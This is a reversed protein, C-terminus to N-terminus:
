WITQPSGVTAPDPTIVFDFTFQEHYKKNEFESDDSSDHYLDLSVDPLIGFSDSNNEHVAHTTHVAHVASVTHTAVDPVGVGSNDGIPDTQTMNMADDGDDDRPPSDVPIPSVSNDGIPNTHTVNMVDGDHSPSDVMIPDSGDMPVEHTTKDNGEDPLSSLMMLVESCCKECNCNVPHLDPTDAKNRSVTKCFRCKFCVCDVPCENRLKVNDARYIGDDNDDVDCYAAFSRIAIGYLDDNESLGLRRLIAHMDDIPVTRSKSGKLCMDFELMIRAFSLPMPLTDTQNQYVCHDSLSM